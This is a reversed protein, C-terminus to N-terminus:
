FLRDLSDIEEPSRRQLEGVQRDYRAELSSVQLPPWDEQGVPSTRSSFPAGKFPLTDFSLFFERSHRINM